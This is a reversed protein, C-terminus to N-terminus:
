KLGSPVADGPKEQLIDRNISWPGRTGMSWLFIPKVGADGAHIM